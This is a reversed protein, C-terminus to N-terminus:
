PEATNFPNDDRDTRTLMVTDGPIWSSSPTIEITIERETVSLDAVSVCLTHPLETGTVTTCGAEGALDDFPFSALRNFEGRLTAERLIAADVTVRENAVHFLSPALLSLIASILIMALISEILTFGAKQSLLSRSM